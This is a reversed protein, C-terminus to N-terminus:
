IVQATDSPSTNSPATPPNNSTGPLDFTKSRRNGSTDHIYSINTGDNHTVNTIQRTNDNNYQISETVANAPFTNIIFPLLAVLLIVGTKKLNIQILNIYNM